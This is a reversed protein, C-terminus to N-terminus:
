MTECEDELDHRSSGNGKKGRRTGYNRALALVKPTWLINKFGGGLKYELETDSGDIYVLYSNSKYGRRTQEQSRLYNRNIEIEMQTLHITEVGVPSLGM